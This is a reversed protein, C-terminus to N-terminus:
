TRRKEAPTDCEESVAAAMLARLIPQEGIMNSRIMKGSNGITRETEQVESKVSSVGQRV